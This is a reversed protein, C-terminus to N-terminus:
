GAETWPVADVAVGSQALVAAEEDFAWRWPEVYGPEPVLVALRLM